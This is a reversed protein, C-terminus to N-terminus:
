DSRKLALLNTQEAIGKIVDLVAGVQNADTELKLIVESAEQVNAALQRINNVTVGVTKSAVIQPMTPIM